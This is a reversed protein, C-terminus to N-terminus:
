RVTTAAQLDTIEREVVFRVRNAVWCGRAIAWAVPLLAAVREIFADRDRSRGPLRVTAHVGLERGVNPERGALVHRQRDNALLDDATTQAREIHEVVVDPVDLTNSFGAEEHVFSPAVRMDPRVEIRAGAHHRSIDAVEAAPGDATTLALGLDDETVIAREGLCRDADRDDLFLTPLLRFRSM